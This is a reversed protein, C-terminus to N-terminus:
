NFVLEDNEQLQTITEAVLLAPPLDRMCRFDIPCDRQFCPACPLPSKVFTHRNTGPLGPGTLEPSTSGFPVIVPTGVAAALHTPGTDNSILAHCNKLLAALERLNTQGSIDFLSIGTSTPDRSSLELLGNSIRTTTDLDSPGGFLVFHPDIKRHLEDIAQIFSRAPWRKAPGYEAGANIGIIPKQNGSPLGFKAVAETLEARAVAVSPAVPDTATGLPALLHLYHHIHHAAVPIEAQAPKDSDIARQIERDSLKRMRYIGTRHKVRHNLALWRGRGEYGLRNPIKAFKLELATRLSNPLAIGLDFNMSRLRAALKLMGEEAGIPIVEDVAPHQQWVAGLHEKTALAIHADPFRERLRVMAPTTMIADGLWNVGRVLIKNPQLDQPNM